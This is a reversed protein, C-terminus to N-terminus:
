TPSHPCDPAQVVLTTATGDPWSITVPIPGGHDVTQSSEGAPWLGGLEDLAIAAIEDPSGAVVTAPADPYGAPAPGLDVSVFPWDGRCVVSTSVKPKAGPPAPAVASGGGGCGALVLLAASVAVLRRVGVPEKGSM